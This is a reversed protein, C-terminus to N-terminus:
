PKFEEVESREMSGESVRHRQHMVWGLKGSGFITAAAYTVWSVDQHLHWRTRSRQGNTLTVQVAIHTWWEELLSSPDPFEWWVGGFAALEKDEDLILGGSSFRDGDLPIVYYNKRFPEIVGPMNKAFSRAILNRNDKRYRALVQVDKIKAETPSQNSVHVQLRPKENPDTAQWQIRVKLRPRVRRYTLVSTLMNLLTFTASLGSVIIAIVPLSM